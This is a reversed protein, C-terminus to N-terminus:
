LDRYVSAGRKSSDSSNAEAGDIQVGVGVLALPRASKQAVSRDSRPRRAAAVHARPGRLGGRNPRSRARWTPRCTSICPGRMPQRAIALGKRGTSRMKRLMKTTWKVAPASRKSRPDKPTYSKLSTAIEGTLVIVAPPRPLTRRSRPTKEHHGAGADRGARRKATLQYTADGHDARWDQQDTSNIGVKRFSRAIGASQRGTHRRTACATRTYRPPSSIQPRPCETRERERHTRLLTAARRHSVDPHAAIIAHAIQSIDACRAHVWFPPRRQSKFASRRAAQVWHATRTSNWCIQINNTLGTRASERKGAGDRM